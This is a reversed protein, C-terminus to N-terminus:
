FNLKFVFHYLGDSIYNRINAVYRLELIKNVISSDPNTDVVTVDYVRTGVYIENDAFLNNIKQLNYIICPYSIRINSPPQFYVPIGNQLDELTEHLEERNAM